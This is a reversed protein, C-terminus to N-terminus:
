MAVFLSDKCGSSVGGRACGDPSLLISLLFKIHHHYRYCFYRISVNHTRSQSFKFYVALLFFFLFFIHLQAPIDM